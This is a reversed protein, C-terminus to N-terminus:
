AIMFSPPFHSKKESMAEMVTLRSFGNTDERDQDKKGM